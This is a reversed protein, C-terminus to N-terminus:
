STGSCIKDYFNYLISWTKKKAEPHFMFGFVRNKEFEFACAHRRGDRFRTLWAIERVGAKKAKPTIVPLDHFYVNLTQDREEGHFIRDRSLDLEIDPTKIWFSTYSVLDGGYYLMLFQCGHCLGLVPLNPFHYLYYLELDLEPQIENTEIRFRAGPFIIGRIDKRKIINPDPLGAIEYPIDRERLTKCIKGLMNVNDPKNRSVILLM